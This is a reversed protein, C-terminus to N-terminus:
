RSNDARPYFGYTILRVTLKGIQNYISHQQSIQKTVNVGTKGSHNRSVQYYLIASRLQEVLNVVEQSDKAKDLFGPITKKELLTQSRKEIEELSSSALDPRTAFPATTSM